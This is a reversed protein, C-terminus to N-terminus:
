GSYFCISIETLCAEFSQMRDTAKTYIVHEARTVRKVQLRMQVLHELVSNKANTFLTDRWQRLTSKVHISHETQLLATSLKYYLLATVLSQKGAFAFSTSTFTQQGSM